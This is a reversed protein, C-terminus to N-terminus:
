CFSSHPAEFEHAPVPFFHNNNGKSLQRSFSAAPEDQLYTHIQTHTHTCKWFAYSFHCFGAEKVRDGTFGLCGWSLQTWNCVSSSTRLLAYWLFQHHWVFCGDVLPVTQRFIKWAKHTSVSLGQSQSWELRLNEFVVSFCFVQGQRRRQFVDYLQWVHFASKLNQNIPLLASANKWSTYGKDDKFRM